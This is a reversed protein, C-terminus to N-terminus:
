VQVSMDLTSDLRQKKIWRYFDQTMQIPPAGFTILNQKTDDFIEIQLATNGKNKDCLDTLEEILTPQVSDIPIHLTVAQLLKQTDQILAVQQVAFVYEANEIPQEKFYKSYHGKQKISCTIM